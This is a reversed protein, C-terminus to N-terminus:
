RWSVTDEVGEEGEEVEALERSAAACLKKGRNRSFPGECDKAGTGGSGVVCREAAM